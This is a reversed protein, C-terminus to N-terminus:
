DHASCVVNTPDFLRSHDTISMQLEGIKGKVPYNLEAADIYYHERHWCASSKCRMSDLACGYETAGIANSMMKDLVEGKHLSLPTCAGDWCTESAGRCEFVSVVEIDYDSTLYVLQYFDVMYFEELMLSLSTGEVDIFEVLNGPLLTTLTAHLSSCREDTCVKGASSIYLTKDGAHVRSTLLLMLLALRKLDRLNVYSNWRRPIDYDPYTNIVSTSSANPADLIPLSSQRWHIERAIPLSVLELPEQPPTAHVLKEKAM